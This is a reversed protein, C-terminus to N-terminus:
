LVSISLEVPDLVRQPDRSRLDVIYTDAAFEVPTGEPVITTTTELHGCRRLSVSPELLEGHHFVWAKTATPVDFVYRMSYIIEDVHTQNIGHRDFCLADPALTWTSSLEPWTRPLGECTELSPAFVPRIDMTAMDALATELSEDYVSAYAAAFSERDDAGDAEAWFIKFKEVGGRQMCAGVFQMAVTYDENDAAVGREVLDVLRAPFDSRDDLVDGDVSGLYDALGEKLLRTGGPLVWHQVAHVLEHTHGPTRAFAYAQEDTDVVCGTVEDPCPWTKPTRQSVWAYTISQLPPPPVGLYDAVREVYEDLEDVISDCVAQADGWDAYRIYKGTLRIKAITFSDDDAESNGGACAFALLM